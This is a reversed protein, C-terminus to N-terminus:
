GQAARWAAGVWLTGEEVGVQVRIYFYPAFPVRAKFM